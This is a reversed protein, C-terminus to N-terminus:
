NRNTIPTNMIVYMYISGNWEAPSEKHMSHTEVEQESDLDLVYCSLTHASPASTSQLSGLNGDRGSMCCLYVSSVFQDM